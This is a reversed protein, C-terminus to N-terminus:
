PALSTVGHLASEKDQERRQADPKSTGTRSPRMPEIFIELGRAQREVEIPHVHLDIERRAHIERRLDNRRNVRVAVAPDGDRFALRIRSLHETGDHQGVDIM